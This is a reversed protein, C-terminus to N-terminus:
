PAPSRQYVRVYDIEYRAPFTTKSPDGGQTGGIALNLLVYHPQHFPNTGSGDENLTKSVDVENLREGDVFLRIAREDWEMRWIHFAGSWAADNFSDIPKRSDAWIPEYRQAGGWAVNALLLGRYYEMIDIEGSHPWTGKVGLTWFAPWLGPRTDIRARMEFRGYQWNHLGRTHLSASSYEAAERSRRWDTSGPRFRSNAVRERRAEIVLVGDAARANGPQYFQLERNRVFGRESNWNRPDPNGTGNFEDAWVLTYGPYPPAPGAITANHTVAPANAAPMSSSSACRLALMACAMPGVIRLLARM